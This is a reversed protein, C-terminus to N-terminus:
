ERHPDLFDDSTDIESELDGETGDVDTPVDPKSVEGPTKAEQIIRLIEEMRQQPQDSIEEFRSNECDM